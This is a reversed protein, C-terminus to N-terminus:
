LSSPRITKVRLTVSSSSGFLDRIPDDPAYSLALYGGHVAVSMSMGESETRRGVAVGPATFSASAMARLNPSFSM